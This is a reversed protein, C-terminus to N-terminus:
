QRFPKKNKRLVLRTTDNVVIELQKWKRYAGEDYRWVHIENCVIGVMVQDIPYQHKEAMEELFSRVFATKQQLPPNQPLNNTEKQKAIAYTFEVSEALDGDNAFHSKIKEYFWDLPTM